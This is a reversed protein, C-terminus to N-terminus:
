IGAIFEKLNIDRSLKLKKRLRYRTTHVSEVSIGLLSAIDKSSFDLKVLACLKQDNQTLNPFQKKLRKYFDKNVDVFRAEFVKWNSANDGVI